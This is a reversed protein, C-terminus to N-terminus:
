LFFFVVFCVLFFVVGVKWYRWEEEPLGTEEAERSDTLMTCFNDGISGMKETVPEDNLVDEEYREPVTCASDSFTRYFWLGRKIVRGSLAGYQDITGPPAVGGDKHPCRASRMPMRVLVSDHESEGTIFLESTAWTDSQQRRRLVEAGEQQSDKQGRRFKKHLHLNKQLLVDQHQITSRPSHATRNRQSSTQPSTLRRRESLLHKTDVDIMDKNMQLCFSDEGLINTGHGGGHPVADCSSDEYSHYCYGKNETSYFFRLTYVEDTSNIMSFRIMRYLQDYDNLHSM